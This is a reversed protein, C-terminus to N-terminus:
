IVCMEATLASINIGAIPAATEGMEAAPSQNRTEHMARWAKEEKKRAVKKKKPQSGLTGHRQWRM